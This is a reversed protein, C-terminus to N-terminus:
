MMPRPQENNTPPPLAEEVTAAVEIEVETTEEVVPPEQKTTIRNRSDKITEEYARMVDKCSNVFALLAEPFYYVYSKGNEDDVTEVIDGSIVEAHMRQIDWETGGLDTCVQTTERIYQNYDVFREKSAEETLDAAAFPLYLYKACAIRVALNVEKFFSDIENKQDDNLIKQGSGAGVANKLESAADQAEILITEYHNNALSYDGDEREWGQQLNKVEDLLEDLVNIFRKWQLRASHQDLLGDMDSFAANSFQRIMRRGAQSSDRSPPGDQFTRMAKAIANVPFIGEMTIRGEKTPKPMGQADFIITGEKEAFNKFYFRDEPSQEHNIMGALTSGTSEFTALSQMAEFFSLNQEKKRKKMEVVGENSTPDITNPRLTVEWVAWTRDLANERAEWWTTRNPSQTQHFANTRCYDGGYAKLPFETSDSDQETEENGKDKKGLIGM